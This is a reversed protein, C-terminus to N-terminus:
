SYVRGNRMKKKIKSLEKKTDKLETRLNDIIEEVEHWLCLNGKYDSKLYGGDKAYADIVSFRNPNM